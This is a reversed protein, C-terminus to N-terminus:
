QPSLIVPQLQRFELAEELTPIILSFDSVMSNPKNKYNDQGFPVFFINKKNIMIGLNKLNNSLADNTAIGIVIPKNNRLLGKTAMLVTSDTIGNAMKALTNGTCPAVAIIDLLNNPGLKEAETITTIPKNGTIEEAKELFYQAKGFRTDTVQSHESFITFVNANEEVLRELQPFVKSYTCFSGTLAIGINKKSITM